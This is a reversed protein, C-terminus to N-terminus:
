YQPSLIEYKSNVKKYLEALHNAFNGKMAAGQTEFQPGLLLTDTDAWFDRNDLQIGMQETSLTDFGSEPLLNRAIVNGYLTLVEDKDLVARNASIEWEQTSGDAFIRLVPYDFITEEKKAFHSLHSSSISYSRMGNNTYAVNQLNRANFAPMEIGPNVTIVSDDENTWLYYGCGISILVLVGYLIRSLSM